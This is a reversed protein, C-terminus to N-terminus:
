FNNMARRNALVSRSADTLANQMRAMLFLSPAGGSEILGCNDNQSQGKNDACALDIEPETEINVKVEQCRLSSMRM